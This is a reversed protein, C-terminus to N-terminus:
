QATDAPADTPAVVPTIDVTGGTDTAGSVDVTMGSNVGIQNLINNLDEQTAPTNDDQNVAVHPVMGRIGHLSQQFFYGVLSLVITMVIITAVTFNMYKRTEKPTPWVVHELEGLSEKIFNAM